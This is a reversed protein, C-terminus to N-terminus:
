HDADAGTGVGLRGETAACCLVLEAVNDASQVVNSMVPSVEERMGDGEAKCRQLEREKMKSEAKYKEMDRKTQDMENKLTSLEAKHGKELHQKNRLLESVQNTLNNVRARHPAPTEATGRYRTDEEEEEDDYDHKPPTLFM